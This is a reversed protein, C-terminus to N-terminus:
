AERRRIRWECFAALTALILLAISINAAILAPHLKYSPKKLQRWEKVSIRTSDYENAIQDVARFPWGYYFSGPTEPIGPHIQDESAPQFWDYTNAWLLLSAALTAIIATSLHIHFWRRKMTDIIRTIKPIEM